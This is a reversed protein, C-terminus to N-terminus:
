PKKEQPKVLITEPRFDVTLQDGSYLQITRTQEITKGDKVWKARIDYSYRKGDELPPTVFRRTEGRKTTKANNFWIEAEEPVRVRIAASTEDKSDAPLVMAPFADALPPNATNNHREAMKRRLRDLVPTDSPEDHGSGPFYGDGSPHQASARSTLLLVLGFGLSALFLNRFSVPMM